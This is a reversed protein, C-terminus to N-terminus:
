TNGVGPQGPEGRVIRGALVVAQDLEGSAAPMGAYVLRDHSGALTRFPKRFAVPGSHELVKAGELDTLSRDDPLHDANRLSLISAHLCLRLADQGNGIVLARKAGALLEEPSRTRDPEGTPRGAVAPVTGPATFRDRTLRIILWGAGFLALVIVTWLLVRVLTANLAMATSIRNFLRLLSERVRTMFQEALGPVPEELQFVPDELIRELQERADPPPSWGHTGTETAPGADAPVTLLLLLVMTGITKM